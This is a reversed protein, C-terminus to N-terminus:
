TSGDFVHINAFIYLNLAFDCIHKYKRCLRRQSHQWLRYQDLRRENHRRAAFIYIYILNIYIALQLYVYIRTASICIYTFIYIYSTASSRKVFMLRKDGRCIHLDRQTMHRLFLVFHQANSLLKNGQMARAHKYILKWIHAYKKPIKQMQKPRKPM